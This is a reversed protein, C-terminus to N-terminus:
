KKDFYDKEDAEKAVVLSCYLFTSSFVFGSILLLMVM